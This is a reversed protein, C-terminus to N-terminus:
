KSDQAIWAGPNIAAERLIRHAGGISALDMAHEVVDIDMDQWQSQLTRDALECEMVSRIVPLIQGIIGGVRVTSIGLTNITAALARGLAIGADRMAACARADGALAAQMIAEVGMDRVEARSPTVAIGTSAEISPHPALLNEAIEKSESSESQNATALDYKGDTRIRHTAVNAEYPSVQELESGLSSANDIGAAQRLANLGVYAELCGRAGCSCQPGNPDVMVHGIEGSWGSGSVLDHNLVIGAGVGVNGSLYIFEALDGAVGPRPHAIAYAALDAENGVQRVDFDALPALLQAFAVDKWGLNPAIALTDASVLGPLALSSGAFRACCVSESARVEQAIQALRTMAEHMSLASVDCCERRRALVRGALDVAVASLFSVNIELGLAVISGRRPSLFVAPRGRRRSKSEQSAAVDAHNRTSTKVPEIAEQYRTQNSSNSNQEGSVESNTKERQGNMEDKSAILAPTVRGVPLPHEDIFGHSLLEDVLRSATAKTMGTRSAIDARSLQGPNALIEQLVVRLNMERLTQPIAHLNTGKVGKTSKKNNSM